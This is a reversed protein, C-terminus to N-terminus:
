EGLDFNAELYATIAKEVSGQLADEIFDKDGIGMYGFNNAFRVAMDAIGFRVDINFVPNNNELKLCNVSVNLFLDKELWSDGGLPKIRSRVLVGKTISTATKESTRCDEDVEVIYALENPNEQSYAVREWDHLEAHAASFTLFLSLGLIHKSM